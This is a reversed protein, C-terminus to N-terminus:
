NDYQLLIDTVKGTNDTVRFGLLFRMAAIEEKTKGATDFVYSGEVDISPNFEDNLQSTHPGDTLILSEYAPDIIPTQSVVSKVSEGTGRIEFTYSLVTKDLNTEDTTTLSTSGTLAFEADGEPAEPAACGFLLMVLLLTVGLAAITKRM